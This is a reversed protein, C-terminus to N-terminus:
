TTRSAGLGTAGSQAAAAGGGSGFQAQRSRQVREAQQQAQANGGLVADTLTDQSVTEAAGLGAGLQRMSAVQGFGQLAQDFTVGLQGLRNAQEADTTVGQIRGAGMVQAAQFERELIPIARDPDLYMGILGGPGVGAIDALSDRVEQPLTYAASAAMQYRQNLQSPSVNNKMMAVFDDPQDYMGAPLGYAHALEKAQQIYQAYNAESGYPSGDARLEEIGPFAAKYSPQQRVWQLVEAETKNQQYQQWAGAILDDPLGFGSLWDHLVDYATDAM